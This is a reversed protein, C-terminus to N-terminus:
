RRAVILDTHEVTEFGDGPKLALLRSTLESEFEGLREGLQVPSAYSTSLQQGVVEAVSLLRTSTFRRTELWKFASDGLVEEHGRKPHSYTGRGARRQPGLFETVVERTVDLWAGEVSASKSFISASGSVLAVGGDPEVLGDLLELVLERDMWHFSAGMTCLRLGPLGATRLGEGRGLIWRVRGYEGDAQLRVGEAIMDPDPDVAWVTSGTRSLPLALQGNGCGLDLVEAGAGLGFDAALEELLEAPYPSRYRAYYQATGSFLERDHTM